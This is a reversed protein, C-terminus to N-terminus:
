AATAPTQVPAASTRRRRALRRALLITSMMAAIVGTLVEPRGTIWMALLGVPAGLAIGGLYCLVIDHIWTM